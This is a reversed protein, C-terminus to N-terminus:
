HLTAESGVKAGSFDACESRSTSLGQGTVWRQVVHEADQVSLLGRASRAAQTDIGTAFGRLFCVARSFPKSLSQASRARASLPPHSLWAATDQDHSPHILCSCCVAKNSSDPTLITHTAPRHCPYLSGSIRACLLPKTSRSTVTTKSPGQVYPTCPYDPAPTRTSHPWARTSQTPDQYDHQANTTTLRCM